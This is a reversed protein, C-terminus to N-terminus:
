LICWFSGDNVVEYAEGPNITLTTVSATTYLNDSGARTLTITASGRNKIRYIRDTNGSLAPLTWTTATSGTFIWATATADLTLTTASSTSTKMYFSNARFTGDIQGTLTNATQLGNITGVRFGTADQRFGLNTGTTGILGYIPLGSLVIPKTNSSGSYAFFSDAQSITTGVWNTAIASNFRGIGANLTGSEIFYVQENGGTNTNQVGIGVNGATAKSINFDIPATVTGTGLTVATGTTTLAANGAMTGSNNYAIQGTTGIVQNDLRTRVNGSNNTFYLHAGDSEIAGAVTTNKLAGPPILLSAHTTDGPPLTVYATTNLVPSATTGAVGLFGRFLNYQTTPTGPDGTGGNTVSIKDIVTTGSAIYEGATYGIAYTNDVTVGLCNNFSMAYTSNTSWDRIICGMVVLYNTGTIDIGYSTSGVGAIQLNALIIHALRNAANIYVASTQFDEISLNSLQIDSTAGSTNSCWIPYAFQTNVTFLQSDFKCDSVRLGGGSIWEIGKSTGVFNGSIIQCNHISSDCTDVRDTDQIRIASRVPNGIWCSYIDYYFASQIDVCIYFGSITCNHISHRQGFGKIVIGGGGTPTGLTANSIIALNEFSCVPKNTGSANIVILDNNDVGGTIISGGQRVGVVPTNVVFESGLQCNVGLFSVSKTVTITTSLLYTGAPFFLVGGTSPMASIASLISARDDTSGNGTAGYDKVNFFSINIATPIASSGSVNGLYTQNAIASLGGSYQPINLTNGIFTAAGSTGTTTLTITAQKAALDSVLNTISSEAINVLTNSAGNITKNTLTQSGTLTVGDIIGYGSITTPISALQSFAYDNSQPLVVGTRSNFSTVADTIGYGAVTTPKSGIQAFTYDNSQATVVGARGFVSSVAGGGGGANALQDAPVNGTSDLTAIGNPQGLSCKIDAVIQKLCNLLKDTVLKYITM